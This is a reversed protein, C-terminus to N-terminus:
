MTGNKNPTVLHYFEKIRRQLPKRKRESANQYWEESEENSTIFIRKAVFHRFGDKINLKLPQDDIIKLMTSIKLQTGDFEDIVVDTQGDYGNWWADDTKWFVDENNRPAHKKCFTTKGTGTLIYVCPM